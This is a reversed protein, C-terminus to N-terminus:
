KNPKKSTTGKANTDALKEETDLEEKETEVLPRTTMDKREGLAIWDGVSDYWEDYTKEVQPKFMKGLVFRDNNNLGQWNCFTSVNIKTGSM